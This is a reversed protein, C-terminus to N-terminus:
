SASCEHIKFSDNRGSIPCLARIKMSFCMSSSFQRPVLQFTASSLVVISQSHESSVRSAGSFNETEGHPFVAEFNWYRKSIVTQYINKKKKLACKSLWILFTYLVQFIKLAFYIYGTVYHIQSYCVALSYYIPEVKDEALAVTM